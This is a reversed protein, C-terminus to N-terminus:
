VWVDEWVGSYVVMYVRFVECVAEWCRWWCRWWCGWLCRWRAPCQKSMCKTHLENDRRTRGPVGRCCRRILSARMANVVGGTSGAWEGEAAALELWAWDVDPKNELRCRLRLCARRNVLQWTVSKFLYPTMPSWNQKSISAPDVVSPIVLTTYLFLVSHTPAHAHTHRHAYTRRVYACPTRAHTRQHTCRM